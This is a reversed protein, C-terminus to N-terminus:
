QVNSPIQSNLAGEPIEIKDVTNVGTLTMTIFMKSVSMSQDVGETEGLSAIMKDMMSQMFETMDLEYKVPMYSENEIWISVNLSGLDTYLSDLTAENFGFSKLQSLVGSEKITEELSDGTILGDYRTAMKGNIEEEGNSKFQEINKLYLEMSNKADYQMMAENPLTDNYWNQGGDMSTYSNIKDGEQAIYMVMTQDGGLEEGMGMTMNMEMSLPDVTQKIKGNTIMSINQEMATMDMDINIEYELSQIESMAQNAKEVIEKSNTAPYGNCGVLAFTLLLVFVPVLTKRLTKM